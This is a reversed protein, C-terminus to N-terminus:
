DIDKTTKDLRIGLYTPQIYTDIIQEYEIEIVKDLFTELNKARDSDNLGSGVRVIRGKSDQLILSGIMGQYKGEGSECDICLLDATKRHKLKISHNVRKGIHYFSSPEVLMCGEYGENVLHKAYGTAYKGYMSSFSVKTLQKSDLISLLTELHKVRAIYAKTILYEAIIDFIMINAKAEDEINNAICKNFNTRYTTLIASKIRDGLKGECDHMFEGVLTFDSIYDKLQEAIVSNAFEKWDSTFFRVDSGEKVIFIQNGDYKKSVLYKTEDFTALTKAPLKDFAKGKQPKFNIM